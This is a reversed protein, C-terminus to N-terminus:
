FNDYGACITMYNDFLTTPEFSSYVKSSQLNLFQCFSSIFDANLIEFTISFVTKKKMKYCLAFCFFDISQVIFKKNQELMNM